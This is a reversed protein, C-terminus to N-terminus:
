TFFTKSVINRGYDDLCWGNKFNWKLGLPPVAKGTSPLEIEHIGNMGSWEVGIKM